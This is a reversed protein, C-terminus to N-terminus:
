LDWKMRKRRYKGTKERPKKARELQLKAKELSKKEAPALARAKKKRRKKKISAIALDGVAITSGDVKPVKPLKKEGNRLSDKVVVAIAMPGDIGLIRIRGVEQEVPLASASSGSSKDRSAVDVSDMQFQFSKGRSHRDSSAFGAPRGDELPADGTQSMSTTPVSVQKKGQVEYDFDTTMSLSPRTVRFEIGIASSPFNEGTTTQLFVKRESRVRRSEMELPRYVSSVTAQILTDARAGGAALALLVFLYRNM